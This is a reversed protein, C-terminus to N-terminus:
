EFKRINLRNTTCIISLMLGMHGYVIMCGGEMWWDLDNPQGGGRGKTVETGVCFRFGFGFHWGHM